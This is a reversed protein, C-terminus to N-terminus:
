IKVNDNPRKLVSWGHVIVLERTRKALVVLFSNHLFCLSALTQDVLEAMWVVELSKM